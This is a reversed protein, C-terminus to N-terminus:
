PYLRGAIVYEGNGDGMAQLNMQRIREAYWLKISPYLNEAWDECHTEFVISGDLAVLYIAYKEYDPRPDIVPIPAPPINDVYLVGACAAADFQWLNRYTVFDVRSYDLQEKVIEHGEPTVIYIDVLPSAEIPPVEGEILFYQDDTHTANYADVQARLAEASDLAKTGLTGEAVKQWASNMIFVNAKEVPPVDPAIVPICSFFSLAICSLILKRM